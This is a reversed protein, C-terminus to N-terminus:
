VKIDIRREAVTSLEMESTEVELSDTSEDINTSANEHLQTNSSEHNQSTTTSSSQSDSERDSQHQADNVSVNFREIYIGQQELASKLKIAQQLLREAAESTETRIEIQLKKGILRVDVNIKGLSPPDLRMKVSSQWLGTRMRISRVLQEFQTRTTSESQKDLPDTFKMEQATKTLTDSSAKRNSTQWKADDTPSSTQVARASEVEGTRTSSLVQGIQQAIQSSQAKGSSVSRSAAVQSSSALPDSSGSMNIMETSQNSGASTQAPSHRPTLKLLDVEPNKMEALPNTKFINDALSQRDAVTSAHQGNLKLDSIDMRQNQVKQDPEIMPQNSLRAQVNTSDMRSRSGMLSDSRYQQQMVSQRHEHSNPSSSEFMQSPSTSEYGSIRNTDVYIMRASDLVFSFDHGAASADVTDGPRIDPDRQESIKRDQNASTVSLTSLTASNM